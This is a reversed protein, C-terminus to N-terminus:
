DREPLKPEVFVPMTPPLPPADEPEAAANARDRLKDVPRRRRRVPLLVFIVLLIVVGGLVLFVIPLGNPGEAETPRPAIQPLTRQYLAITTPVAVGSTGTVLPTITTGDSAFWASHSDDRVLVTGTPAKALAGVLAPGLDFDALEPDDTEPNIWVTALGVPLDKVTVPAVWTNTLETPADTTTGSLFSSTWSFVRHIGGVKTTDDFAIGSGADKGPGYLKEVRPLMGTAFYKAVPEPVTPEDLAFAAGGGSMVLGIALGLAIAGKSRASILGNRV